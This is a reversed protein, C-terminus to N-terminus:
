WQTLDGIGWLARRSPPKKKIVRRLSPFHRGRLDGPCHTLFGPLSSSICISPSNIELRTDEVITYENSLCRKFGQTCGAAPKSRLTAPSLGRGGPSVELGM